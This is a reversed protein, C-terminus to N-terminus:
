NDTRLADIPDTRTARRAPIYSAALAVFTLILAISCFTIPDTPSLGNLLGRLLRTVALAILVGITLGIGALKVGDSMVMTRVSREEAGLAMRIGIERTRQTVTYALIGYLGLAALGLGIIGFVTTVIAAARSPLLAIGMFNEYATNADILLDPQIDHVIDRLVPAITETGSRLRVLVVMETSPNQEYPVYVMARPEESLSRYKGNRAVGVIELAPDEPSHLQIRKGLPSEGPWERLALTENVIAVLPADEGDTSTFTRGQIVPIRMTEMLGPSIRSSETLPRDNEDVPERGVIAYPTSRGGLTVPPLDILGASEVQPLALARQTVENFLRVADANTYNGQLGMESSLAHLGAPEFGLDVDQVRALGRAFLGAGLLLLASGAVQAVVFVSRLRSRTSSSAMSDAKLTTNLDPKTVQLAPALGFILGTILAVAMSFVLARADPAFDLVLPVDFPLEYSAILRTAYVTILLGGAGGLCFLMTSETILQRVVRSRRAGLALRLAMEKGRRSARALLMGGVNVSAILLITGSAVFLFISFAAAALMAQRGIPGFPEVDVGYDVSTEPYTARLNSSVVNLAEEVRDISVGEARRGIANLWTADFSAMDYDDDFAPAVGIPLWVGAAIIANPGRFGEQTVGVITMTHRNMRVTRGVISSDAGFRRTWLSHSLVATLTGNNPDDEEALFLRGLAPRVGLLGFFNHSVFLAMVTERAEDNEFGVATIAMAALDTLGSEATKYELFSPYSIEHYSSGDEAIRHPKVLENANQIGPPPRLLVSNVVSFITTTAGIGIAITLAAVVAFVPSKLLTRSAFQIDQILTELFGARRPRPVHNPERGRLRRMRASFKEVSYRSAAQLAQRWYWFRARLWGYQVHRDSYMEYLDGLVGDRASGRPVFITVLARALLPPHPKM